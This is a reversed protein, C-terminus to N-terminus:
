SLFLSTLRTAALAKHSFTVSGVQANVYEFRVPLLLVGVPLPRPSLCHHPRALETFSSQSPSLRHVDWASSYLTMKLGCWTQTLVEAIGTSQKTGTILTKENVQPGRENGKGRGRGDGTRPKRIRGTTAIGGSKESVRGEAGQFPKSFLSHNLRFSRLLNEHLTKM